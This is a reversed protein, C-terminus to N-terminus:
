DRCAAGGQDTVTPADLSVPQDSSGGRPPPPLPRVQYQPLVRSQSPPPINQPPPDSPKIPWRPQAAGNPIAGPPRPDDSYGLPASEGLVSVRLPFDAGCM